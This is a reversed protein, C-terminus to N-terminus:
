NKQNVNKMVWNYYGECFAILATEYINDIDSENLNEGNISKTLTLVKKLQKRKPLEINVVLNEDLMVEYYISKYITLRVNNVSKRHMIM